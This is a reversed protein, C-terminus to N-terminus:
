IAQQNYFDLILDVVVAAAARGNIQGMQPVGGVSTTNIESLRRTGSDDVLTDVGYMAIGLQALRPNLSRIIQYEDEDVVAPQSSGGMAINCLWSGDAPLRLSAGLIEGNVVVIRKDGERVGQLYKVGLYEVPEETLKAAFTSWNSTKKGEWVQDGDIRVLGRGGYERLPKLVIPFRSKLSIIDELSKCLQMPPCLEPFNLLFGKSGTEYIGAPHNIQVANPFANLLLDRRESTLPPPMRHWVLDYDALSLEREQHFYSTGEPHFAFDAGVTTGWLETLDEGNFFAENKASGCTAVELQVCRPHQRMAQVLAYLSNEASHGRHDTLM